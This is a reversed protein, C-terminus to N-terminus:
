AGAIVSNLAAIDLAGIGTVEDYGPTATYGGNNGGVIDTFGPVPSTDGLSPNVKDYLAYFDIAAMGLKNAHASQLRAWSGLALPSSLSTGGVGTPTGNVYIEAATAVNPDADMAIDPVARGGMVAGQTYFPDSDQTWFGPVETESDGGGSGAWGIEQVRNGNADSILSTGGVATAYMGSAPWNTGPFSSPVGTAAVFACGDGNDGSSAFFTQGQMAGETLVNDTSIMSGDLYPGIDCGGVSASMAVAKDQSVFAAVATDINTDNLAGVNYLYIHKLTTAMASSSQTDLDWEDAGATDTSQPGVKIISVGVQPLSFATEATRLDTIAGSVNGETFLAVATRGGTPTGAADYTNQFDEPPIENPIVPNGASTSNTGAHQAAALRRAASKAASKSAATQTMLAPQPTPLRWNSLGVVAQVIGTLASPVQAGGVNARFTSGNPMVYNGIRTNFATEADRVTGTASILMRDGQVSVGTFGKSSLYSTVASVQASTPAYAAEWQAPTLFQHFTASGPQYMAHLSAQEAAADQPQLTVALRVPASPPASGTLTAGQISTALTATSGWSSSAVSASASPATAAGLTVLM